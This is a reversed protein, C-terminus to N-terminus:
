QVTDCKEARHFKRGRRRGGRNCEGPYVCLTQSRGIIAPGHIYATPAVTASKAIWVEESPHDYEEESLTKGLELIFDHIKPLVEWPYTVGDFIEKAITEELTYLEKVTLGKM